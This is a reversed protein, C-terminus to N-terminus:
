VFRPGQAQEFEHVDTVLLVPVQLLGEFYLQFIYRLRNTIETTFVTIMAHCNSCEKTPSVLTGTM